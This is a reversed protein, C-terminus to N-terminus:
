YHLTIIWSLNKQNQFVQYLLKMPLHLKVQKKNFNYFIDVLVEQLIQYQIQLIQLTSVNKIYTIFLKFTNVLVQNIQLVSLKNRSDLIASTISFKDMIKWYEDIKQYIFSAIECQTFNENDIYKKLHM